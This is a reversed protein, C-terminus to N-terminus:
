FKSLKLTYASMEKLNQIFEKLANKVYEPGFM